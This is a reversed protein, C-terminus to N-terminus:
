NLVPVIGMESTIHNIPTHYNGWWDHTTVIGYLDGRDSSEVVTGGSDGHEIATNSRVLGRIYEGELTLVTVNVASVIGFDVGGAYGSKM